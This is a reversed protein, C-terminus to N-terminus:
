CLRADKATAKNCSGSSRISSSGVTLFETEEKNYKRIMPLM